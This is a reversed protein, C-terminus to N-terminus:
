SVSYLCVDVGLAMGKQEFPDCVARSQKDNVSWKSLRRRLLARSIMQRTKSRMQILPHRFKMLLWYVLYLNTYNCKIWSYESTRCYLRRIPVHLEVLTPSCLLPYELVSDVFTPTKPLSLTTNSKVDYSLSPNLLLTSLCTFIEPAYVESMQYLLSTM